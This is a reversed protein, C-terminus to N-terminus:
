PVSRRFYARLIIGRSCPLSLRGVAKAGVTVNPQPHGYRRAEPEDYGMDVTSRSSRRCPPYLRRGFRVQTRVSVTRAGFSVTKNVIRLRAGRPSLSANNFPPYWDIHLSSVRVYYRPCSLGDHNSSVRPRGEHGASDRACPAHHFLM